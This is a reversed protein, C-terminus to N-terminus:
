SANGGGCQEPTFDAREPDSCWMSGSGGSGGGGGGSGGSGGGGGAGAPAYYYYLTEERWASCQATAPDVSTCRRVTSTGCLLSSGGPCSNVMQAYAPTSIEELATLGFLSFALLFCASFTKRM